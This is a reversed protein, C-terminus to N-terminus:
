RRSWQRTGQSILELAERIPPDVGVITGNGIFLPHLITDRTKAMCMIRRDHALRIKDRRDRSVRLCPPIRIGIRDFAELVAHIKSMICRTILDEARINKQMWFRYMIQTFVEM